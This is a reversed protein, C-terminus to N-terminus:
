LLGLEEKWRLVRLASEEIREESLEGSEVAALVAPYQTEYDSCCLLDNGAQVAQVAASSADCYEQIADMVLDDTIICGTFGLEERLVRHWEPSLSAPAEGDRCTVINHSVLVCGAGAQIGAEFPLFDERQFAEYPREDVAIGTHTDPNNGYGPFHKLVCGMGEEGYLSVVKGVYGATTRADQGLSRDYLFAGEQQTIDCVPAFNVNLGLGQLTRIKDREVSLVLDLGGAEYLRRPSWYPEDCIDPNASARVVTGGEEDVGLLLPVKASDQYSQIDARVQERTKDQFDRGFLIYGGFHYQAVAQAAEEAPVRVFFLQGVKEELTMSALLEEPASSGVAPSPTPPAAALAVAQATVTDGVRGAEEYTVTARCGDLLPDGTVQTEDTLVVTLVSGDELRLEFASKSARAVKGEVTAPAPEPAPSATPQAAAEVASSHSSEGAPVSSGGGASCGCLALVLALVWAVCKKGM